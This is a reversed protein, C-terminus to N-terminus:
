SSCPSAAKIRMIAVVLRKLRRLAVVLCSAPWFHYNPAFSLFRVIGSDQASQHANLGVRKGDKAGIGWRLRTSRGSSRPPRTPPVSRAHSSHYPM